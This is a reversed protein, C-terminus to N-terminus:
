VNTLLNKLSRVSSLFYPSQDTTTVHIRIVMKTFLFLKPKKLYDPFEGSSLFCNFNQALIPAIIEANLKLDESTINDLGPSSRLKLM